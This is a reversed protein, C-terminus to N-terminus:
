RIGVRQYRVIWVIPKDLHPSFVEKRVELTKDRLTYSSKLGGQDGDFRLILGNAVPTPTVLVKKGDRGDITRAELPADFTFPPKDPCSASFGSDAYSLTLDPCSDVTKTLHPRALGRFAWPISGLAEDVAETHLREVEAPSQLIQWRGSLEPTALAVQSVLAFLM